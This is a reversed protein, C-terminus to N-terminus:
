RYIAKIGSWTTPQTAPGECDLLLKWALEIFGYVSGDETSDAGDAFVLPPIFEFAAGYYGSHMLPYPGTGPRPYVAPLCGLDHMVCGSDIPASINDLGWQPYTCITGSHTATVLIRPFASPPGSTACDTIPISPLFVINNWGETTEIPGSSALPLGIPANNEDACYVDFEVTFLGPYATGYGAFDLVSLGVVDHCNEPDCATNGGTGTEGVTFVTGIIDGCDWDYYAWFWSYTPCPIYYYYQLTCGQLAEVGYDERMMYQKKEIALLSAPVVLAILVALVIAKKIM